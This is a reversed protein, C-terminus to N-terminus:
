PEPVDDSSLQHDNRQGVTAPYQLKTFIDQLIVPKLNEKLTIGPLKNVEAEEM